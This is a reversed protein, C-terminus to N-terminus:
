IKVVMEAVKEEGGTNLYLGHQMFSNRNLKIDLLKVIDMAKLLKHLKRNFVQVENNIRSTEQLDHRRSAAGKRPDFSPGDLGHSNRIQWNGEKLQTVNWRTFHSPSHLHVPFSTFLRPTSSPGKLIWCVVTLHVHMEHHTQRLESNHSSLNREPIAMTRGQSRNCLTLPMVSQAALSSRCGAPHVM